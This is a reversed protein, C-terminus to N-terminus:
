DSESELMKRIEAIEKQAKALEELLTKMTNQNSVQLERLRQQVEFLSSLDKQLGAIAMRAETLQSQLQQIQAQTQVSQLWLEYYTPYYPQSQCQTIDPTLFQMFVACAILITIRTM